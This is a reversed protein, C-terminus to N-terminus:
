AVGGEAVIVTAELDRNRLERLALVHYRAREGASWTALERAPVHSARCVWCQAYVSWYTVTGDRHYTNKIQM